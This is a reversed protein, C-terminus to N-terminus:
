FPLESVDVDPLEFRMPLEMAEKAKMEEEEESTMPESGAFNPKEVGGLFQINQEARVSIITGPKGEKDLFSYPAEMEGSVFVRRGKKLYKMCTEGSKRLVKVRIFKTGEDPRGNVAVTFACYKTGGATTKEEPDRVLQGIFNLICTDM